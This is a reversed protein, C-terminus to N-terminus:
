TGLARVTEEGLWAKALAVVRANAPVNGLYRERAAPEPIDRVRKKLRPITDSLAARATEVRGAAHRAEALSLRLDIEGNGELGLRELERVGGDAVALAEEARGRELLIRAHLATVEWACGPFAQAAERGVRAEHEALALDGQRRRIAALTGHAQGIFMANKAVVVERALREPEDLRDLPATQALLRALFARVYALPAAEGLRTAQALTERLEAEAGTPDGLDYVAKGRYACLIAHYRQEDVARLTKTAESFRAMSSWPAEEICVHDVGEMATLYGWTLLDDRAAEGAVQWARRRFARSEDKMGKFALM